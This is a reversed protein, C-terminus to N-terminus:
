RNFSAFNLWFRRQADSADRDFPRDRIPHPLPAQGSAVLMADALISLM